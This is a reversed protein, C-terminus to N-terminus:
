RASAPVCIASGISRGCRRRALPWSGAGSWRSTPLSSIRSDAPDTPGTVGNVALEIRELIDLTDPVLEEYAKGRYPPIPVSEIEQRIYNIGSAGSMMPRRTEEAVVSLVGIICKIVAPGLERPFLGRRRWM